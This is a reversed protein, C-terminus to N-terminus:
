QRRYNLLVLGLKALAPQVAKEMEQLWRDHDLKVQARRQQDALPQLQSLIAEAAHDRIEDDSLGLLREAATHMLEPATGIAVSFRNPARFGPGGDELPEMEPLVLHIPELRLWDYNQILPPVFKLGGHICQISKGGSGMKGYVVLVRNPPCRKYCKIALSVYLFMFVLVGVITLVLTWPFPPDAAL